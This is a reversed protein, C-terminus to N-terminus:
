IVAEGTKNSPAQKELGIFEARNGLVFRNIFLAMSVCVFFTIFMM